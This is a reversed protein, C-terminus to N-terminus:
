LLGKGRALGFAFGVHIFNLLALTLFMAPWGFGHWLTLAAVIPLSLLNAIILHGVILRAAKM